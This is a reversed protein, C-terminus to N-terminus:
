QYIQRYFIQKTDGRFIGFTATASPDEVGALGDWNFQLWADISANLDVSVVIDGTNGAGPATLSIDLVGNVAFPSTVSVTSSGGSLAPNIMLDSDNIVTCNDESNVVFNSGNFFETQMPMTLSVLESGYVNDLALRGYRLETGTLNSFEFSDCNGDANPDYCVLDTDTLDAVPINLDVLATTNTIPPEADVPKSATLKEGSITYVRDGDLNNTDTILISGMTTAPSLVSTSSLAVDKSYSRNLLTSNFKWFISDYNNTPNGNASIATITLVPDIQYSFEQGFYSFIGNCEAEFFPMNAAVALRAPIFRGVDETTHITTYSTDGLYSVLNLHMDIIGVEDWNIIGETRGNSYTNIFSSTLVGSDAGAPQELTHTLEIVSSSEQGFLTAITNNFLNAGADPEGNMDSDDIAQWLVGTIDAPFDSGAIQFITSNQPSDAPDSYSVNGDSGNLVADNWDLERMNYAGSGDDFDLRLAFPRVVFQDSIGTNITGGTSTIYDKAFLSILGVNNYVFSLPAYGNSEFNLTVPLTNGTTSGDNHAITTSSGSNYTLNNSIRVENASCNDTDLCQYGMDISHTGADLANVCVPSGSTNDTRVARLYINHANPLTSSPKGGLQTSITTSPPSSIDTVFQFLSDVFALSPDDASIASGSNETASGDTVNIDILPTVTAESITFSASTQGSLITVPSSTIADVLPNTSITIATDAPVAFAAHSSDHATITITEPACTIGTGSHSISYHDVIACSQSADININDISITEPSAGYCCAGSNISTNFRLSIKTNASIYPTLDYSKTGSTDRIGNINELLTWNTGGNSSARVLLSDDNDVGGSTVFDFSFTASTFGSLNLEREVGPANSSEPSYNNLKLTGASISVHGSSANPSSEPVTLSSGEFEDWNTSFSMDGDNNAFSASSFEDRFTANCVMAIISLEDVTSDSTTTGAGDDVTAVVDYVGIALPTASSLDLTWDDGSSSLEASSGLTYIIANLQITLGGAANASNFTGTIVPTTDTTTLSNITPEASGCAEINLNDVHFRDSGGLSNSTIFRIKFDNALFINSIVLNTSGSGVSSGAFNQLSTWSNGGGKVEVDIYDSSRDFSKEEYDFSLTASSYASLDASRTIARNRNEIRLRNGTIRIEGNKPSGNDNTEFWNGSWNATGDQNGYSVSNFKDSFSECGSSPTPVGGTCQPHTPTCIGDVVTNKGLTLKNAATLNGTVSSDKDFRIDNGASINGTFNAKSAIIVDQSANINLEFGNSRVTFDKGARFHGTINLTVDSTMNITTNKGLNITNNCTYQPGSGSCNFPSSSIDQPLTYTAAFVNSIAALLALM